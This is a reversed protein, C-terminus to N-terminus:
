KRKSCDLIFFFARIFYYLTTFFLEMLRKGRLPRTFPRTSIYRLKSLLIPIKPHTKVTVAMLTTTITTPISFPMAHHHVSFRFPPPFALPSIWTPPHYPNLCCRTWDTEGTRRAFAGGIPNSIVIMEDEHTGHNRRATHVRVVLGILCTRGLPPYVEKIPFVSHM